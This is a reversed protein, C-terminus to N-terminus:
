KLINSIIHNQNIEFGNKEKYFLQSLWDYYVQMITLMHIWASLSISLKLNIEFWSNREAYNYEKRSMYM